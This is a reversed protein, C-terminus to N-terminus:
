SLMKAIDKSLNAVDESHGKTYHDYLDLTRVFSLIIDSKILRNQGEIYRKKFLRNLLTTYDKIRKLTKNNIVNSQKYYDHAVIFLVDSDFTFVSYIRTAAKITSLSDAFVYNPYHKKISNGIHKFYILPKNQMAKSEHLEHLFPIKDIDYGEAIIPEISGNTAFYAFSADTKGYLFSTLAFTEKAFHEKSVDEGLIDSSLDFFRYIYDITKNLQKNSTELFSNQERHKEVYRKLMLSFISTIAIFGFVISINEVFGWFNSTHYTVYSLIGYTILFLGN